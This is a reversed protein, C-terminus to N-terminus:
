VTESLDGRKVYWEKQLTYLAKYTGDPKSMLEEHSGIEEIIGDNLVLCKNFLFTSGLRHTIYFVTHEGMVESFHTYYEIEALPDLPATPEDLICFERKAFVTRAMSIQQWQGGSLSVGNELEPTLFTDYNGKLTAKLNLMHNNCLVTDLEENSFPRDIRYLGINERATTKYNVADQQMCVFVKQLERNSYEELDVGNLLIKGQVPKYLGLMLKTITTKGAGNVGILAFHDGKEIKFSVGKLVLTNSGPYSFFVNDFELSEFSINRNSKRDVIYSCQNFQKVDQLFHKIEGLDSIERILSNLNFNFKTIIMQMLSIYLGLTVEGKQLPSILALGFILINSMSFCMAIGTALSSKTYNSIKDTNLKKFAVDWKKELFNAFQFLKREKASERNVIAKHLYDTYRVNFSNKEWVKRAYQVRKKNFYLSPLSLLISIPIVWWTNTPIIYAFIGLLGILYILINAVFRVSQQTIPKIASKIRYIVDQNVPNEYEEYRIKGMETLFDTTVSTEIKSCVKLNLYSILNQSNMDIINLLFFALLITALAWFEGFSHLSSQDILKTQVNILLAPLLGSVISIAILVTYAMPCFIWGSVLLHGIKLKVKRNFINMRLEYEKEIIRRTNLEVILVLSCIDVSLGM